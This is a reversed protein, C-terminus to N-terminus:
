WGSKGGVDALWVDPTYRRVSCAAIRGGGGVVVGVGSTVSNLWCGSALPAVPILGAGGPAVKELSLERRSRPGTHTPTTEAVVLLAGDSAWGVPQVETPARVVAAFSGRALDAEVIAGRVASWWVVRSTAANAVPRSATALSDPIMLTRRVAGTTDVVSLRLAQVLVLADNGAWGITRGLDHGQHVTRERGGDRDIIAAETTTATTANSVSYGLHRGDPSWYPYDRLGHQSTLQIPAGGTVPFLYVNEGINDTASGAIAAGDPSVDNPWLWSTHQGVSRWQANPQDLRLALMDYETPGDVVVLRGSRAVDILGDVGDQVMGLAVRARDTRIRDGVVPVFRINDGTGPAPSVIYFGTQSPHWRVIQRFQLASSSDLLRGRGDLLSLIGDPFSEVAIIRKGDPAFEFGDVSLGPPLPASDTRALTRPDFWLLSQRGARGSALVLHGDPSLTHAAAPMPVRQATGGLRPILHLTAASSDSSGVFAITGGDASWHLESTITPWTLLKVSQTGDVERVQLTYSCAFEKGFCDNSVYALWGGDPSIAAGVVDGEFTLQRALQLETIATGPRLAQWLLGAAAVALVVAAARWFAVTRLARTTRM